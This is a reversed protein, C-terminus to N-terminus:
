AIFSPGHGSRESREHLESVWLGPTALLVFDPTNGGKVTHFNKLASRQFIQLYVETRLPAIYQIERQDTDQKIKMWKISKYTVPLRSNPMLTLCQTQEKSSNEQERSRCGVRISTTM